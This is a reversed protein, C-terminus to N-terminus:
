ASIPPRLTNESTSVPAQLLHHFTTNSPHVSLTKNSESILIPSLVCLECLHNCSNEHTEARNIQLQENNMEGRDASNMEQMMTLCPESQSAEALQNEDLCCAM